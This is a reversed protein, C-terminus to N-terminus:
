TQKLIEGLRKVKEEELNIENIAEEIIEHVKEAENESVSDINELEFHM